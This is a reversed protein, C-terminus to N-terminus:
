TGYMTKWHDKGSAWEVLFERIGVGQKRFAMGWTEDLEHANPDFWIIQGDATTCDVCSYIACGWHCFPLLGSPWHWHPDEPDAESYKTYLGVSSDGEDTPHGGDLGVIGYGPGFGGNAISSFLIKLIQPLPQGLKQEAQQIIKESVPPHKASCNVFQESKTITQIAEETNM